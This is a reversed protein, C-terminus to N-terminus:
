LRKVVDLDSEREKQTRLFFQNEHSFSEVFGDLMDDHHQHQKEVMYESMAHVCWM